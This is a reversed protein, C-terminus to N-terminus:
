FGADRLLPVFCSDSFKEVDMEFTFNEKIVDKRYPLICYIIRFILHHYCKRNGQFIVKHFEYDHACLYNLLILGLKRSCVLDTDSLSFVNKCYRGLKIQCLYSPLILMEFCTM